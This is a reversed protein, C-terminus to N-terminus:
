LHRCSKNKFVGRLNGEFSEKLNYYPSNKLWAEIKTRFNKAELDRVSAPLLNFMRMAMVPFCNKKSLRCFPLDIQQCGRTNHSHHQARTIFTAQNNKIYLLSDLIYQNVVTLIGLKVFIPRCHDRYGASDIIRLAKKQLFMWLRETVLINPPASM